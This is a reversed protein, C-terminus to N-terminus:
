IYKYIEMVEGDTVGGNITITDSAFTKTAYRQGPDDTMQHIAKGDALWIFNANALDAHQFVTDGDDMPAGPAGVRFRFVFLIKNFIINQNDLIITGGLYIPAPLHHEYKWTITRGRSSDLNGSDYDFIIQAGADENGILRQDGNRDWLILGFEENMMAALGLSNNLTNGGLTTVVQMEVYDGAPGRKSVERFTKEKETAEIIYLEADDKLLVPSNIVGNHHDIVPWTQVDSIRFFAIKCLGGPRIRAAKRLNQIPIYINDYM